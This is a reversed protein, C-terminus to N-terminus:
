GEQSHFESIFFARIRAIAAVTAAATVGASAASAGPSTRSTVKEPITVWVTPPV